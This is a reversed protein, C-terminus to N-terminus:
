IGHHSGKEWGPSFTATGIGSDRDTIVSVPANQGVTWIYATNEGDVTVIRRGDQPDFAASFGSLEHIVDGTM